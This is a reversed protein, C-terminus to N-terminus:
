HSENKRISSVLKKLEFIINMEGVVKRESIKICSINNKMGISKIKELQCDESLIMYCYKKSKIYHPLQLFLNEFYEFNDGCYWAHEALSQPAKPYYPPNIIIYDFERDKLKEFLNSYLIEIQTNNNLTNKELAKLAIENIDTATVVAGQQAALISIIGCGCGLELFTKTKLNLTELFQLLIKTSITIFPPFVTPEVIVSISKYKYLRPKALYITSAKKLFPSIIKKIIGRM